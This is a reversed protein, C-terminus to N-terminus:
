WRLSGMPSAQSLVVCQRKDRARPQLVGLAAQPGGVGEQSAQLPRPSSHLIVLWVALSLLTPCVERCPLRASM